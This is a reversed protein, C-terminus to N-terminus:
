NSPIKHKTALWWLTAPILYYALAVTLNAIIYPIILSWDWALCFGHATFTAVQM